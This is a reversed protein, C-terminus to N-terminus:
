ESRLRGCQQMVSKGVTGRKVKAPYMKASPPALRRKTRRKRARNPQIGPPTATAAVQTQVKKVINVPADPTVM